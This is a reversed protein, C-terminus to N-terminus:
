LAQKDVKFLKADMSATLHRDRFFQHRRFTFLFLPQCCAPDLGLKTVLKAYKLWMSVCLVYVSPSQRLTHLGARNWRWQFCAFWFYSGLIRARLVEELSPLRGAM